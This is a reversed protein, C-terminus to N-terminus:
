PMRARIPWVRWAVGGSADRIVVALQGEAPDDAEVRLYAAPLDFDHMTGCSSLWTVDYSADDLPVSLPVDVLPAVVLEAAAAAASAGDIKVDPMTPDAGTAGLWVTKTAVLAGAAYSVRVVLPVPAGAALGLSSRAAALAPEDPATVVWRDGDRAVAGALSAPSVVAADEPAQEAVPAGKFGLLADLVARDGTAIRPPTARVAIIREHDLQWPPDVDGACGVLVAAIAALAGRSAIV